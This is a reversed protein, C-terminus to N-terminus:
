GWPGKAGAPQCAHSILSYYTRLIQAHMCCLISGYREVEAWFSLDNLLKTVNVVKTGIVKKYTSHNGKIVEEHLFRRFMDATSSNM